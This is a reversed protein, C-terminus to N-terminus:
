SAGFGGTPSEHEDRERQCKGDESIQEALRETGPQLFVDGGFGIHAVHLDRINAKDAIAYMTNDRFLNTPAPDGRGIYALYYPRSSKAGVCCDHGVDVKEEAVVFEGDGASEFIKLRIESIGGARIHVRRTEIRARHTVSVQVVRDIGHREKRLSPQHIQRIWGCFIVVCGCALIKQGIKLFRRICCANHHIFRNFRAIGLFM